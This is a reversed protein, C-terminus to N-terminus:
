NGLIQFEASVGVLAKIVAASASVSVIFGDERSAGLGNLRAEKFYEGLKGLGVNRENGFTKGGNKSLKVTVLPDTTYTGVGPIMDIRLQDLRLKNPFAHVPIWVEMVLADGNEDFTDKDIEYLKNANYDGVITKGAFSVACCARWRSLGYSQREVWAKTKLDYQWTFDDGSVVYYFHGGKQYTFAEIADPNSTEEISREVAHNSIVGATYGELQRVTKDDAVFFIIDDIQAVSAGALCGTSIVSGSKAFVASGTAPNYWPEITSEGIALFESQRTVGRLLGDPAYEATAIDNAGYSTGESLASWQFQGTGSSMTHIFRQNLFTVSNSPLLDTDVLGILVDNEILGRVGSGVLIIQPTTKLNVAMYVRGDSTFAGLDTEGGGENVKFVRRGSVVYLNAGSVIMGRTEGGGSLTAFLKLGDSAYLGFASKGENGRTEPHANIIRTNGDAGHRGPNSQQPLDIPPM